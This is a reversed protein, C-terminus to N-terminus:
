EHPVLSGQRRRRAQRQGPGARRCTACMATRHTRTRTRTRTHTHTAVPSPDTRLQASPLSHVGPFQMVYPRIWVLRSTILFHRNPPFRCVSPTTSAGLRRELDLSSRCLAEHMTAMNVNSTPSLCKLGGAVDGSRRPWRERWNLRDSIAIGASSCRSMSPPSVETAGFDASPTEACSQATCAKRSPPSPALPAPVISVASLAAMSVSSTASDCVSQGVTTAGGMKVGTWDSPVTFAGSRVPRAALFFFRAMFFPAGAILITRPKVGAAEPSSSESQEVALLGLLNGELNPPRALEVLLGPSRGEDAPPPM